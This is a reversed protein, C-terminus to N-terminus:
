RKLTVRTKLAWRQRKSLLHFTIRIRPNDWYITGLYMPIIGVPQNGSTM